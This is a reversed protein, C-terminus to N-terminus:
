YFCNDNYYSLLQRAALIVKLIYRYSLQKNRLYREIQKLYM